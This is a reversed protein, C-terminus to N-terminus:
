SLQKVDRDLIPEQAKTLSFPSRKRLPTTPSFVLCFLFLLIMDILIMLPYVPGHSDREAPRLPFFVEWSGQHGKPRKAIDPCASIDVKRALEGEGASPVALTQPLDATLSAAAHRKRGASLSDWPGSLHPLSIVLLLYIAPSREGMIAQCSRRLTTSLLRETDKCFSDCSIAELLLLVFLIRCFLFFGFLRLRLASMFRIWRFASIRM